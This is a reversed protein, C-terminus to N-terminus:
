NRPQRFVQVPPIPVQTPKHPVHPASNKTDLTRGQADIRLTSGQIGPNKLDFRTASPSGQVAEGYRPMEVKMTFAGGLKQEFISGVHATGETTAGTTDARPPVVPYVKGDSTPRLRDPSPSAPAASERKFEIQGTAENKKGHWGWDSRIPLNPDRVVPPPTPVTGVPAESTKGGVGHIKKLADKVDNFIERNLDQAIYMAKDRPITLYDMVEMVFENPQIFGMMLAGTVQALLGTEVKTLQYKKGVSAIKEYTEPNSITDRILVPLTLFKAQTQQQTTDDM